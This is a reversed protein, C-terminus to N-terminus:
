HDALPLLNELQTKWETLDKDIRVLREKTENGERIESMRKTIEGNLKGIESNIIQIESDSNGFDLKM